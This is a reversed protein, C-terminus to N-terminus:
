RIMIYLKLIKTLYAGIKRYRIRSNQVLFQIKISMEDIDIKDAYALVDLWILFVRGM